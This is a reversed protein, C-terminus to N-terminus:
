VMGHERGTDARRGTHWTPANYGCPQLCRWSRQRVPLGMMRTKQDGAGIGLQSLFGKIPPPVFYFPTPFNQSKRVFDSDIEFVTRSLSM